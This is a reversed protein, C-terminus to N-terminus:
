FGDNPPHANSSYVFHTVSVDHVTFSRPRDSTWCNALIYEAALERGSNQEELEKFVIFLILNYPQMRGGLPNGKIMPNGAHSKCLEQTKNELTVSYIVSHGWLTENLFPIDVRLVEM